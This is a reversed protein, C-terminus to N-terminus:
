GTWGRDPWPEGSGVDRGGGDSVLGAAPLSEAVELNVGIAVGTCGLAQMATDLHEAAVSAIALAVAPVAHDLAAAGPQWDVDLTVRIM